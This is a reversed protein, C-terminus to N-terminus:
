SQAQKMMQQQERLMPIMEGINRLRRQADRVAKTHGSGSSVFRQLLLRAENLQTLAKAPNAADFLYDQLLIARNYAIAPNGPSLAEAQQYTKMAEEFRRQGRFAVGLGITADLKTKKDPSLGLVTSFSAEASKYDRFSLTIAGINMHAEILKPDLSVAKRFQALARTVEEQRLLVLGLVNYIPAYDPDQKSAQLCILRAIELQSRSKAYDYVITALMDYAEINFSDVALARHINNIAEHVASPDHLARSRELMALNAYGESTKSAAAKRFYDAGEAKQGRTFAIQGLNNLAPGYGPHKAVIERYIAEAQPVQGCAQLVAGQNFKAEVLKPYEEYVDAFGDAVSECRDGALGAQRAADYAEVAEAFARKESGSVERDPMAPPPPLTDDKAPGTQPAPQTPACAALAVVSLILSITLCGTQHKYEPM